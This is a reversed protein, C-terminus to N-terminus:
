NKKRRFFIFLAFGMLLGALIILLTTLSESSSPLVEEEPPLPDLIDSYDGPNGYPGEGPPSIHKVDKLSRANIKMSKIARAFADSYKTYYLKHASFTVLVAINNKVRQTAPTTAQFRVVSINGM